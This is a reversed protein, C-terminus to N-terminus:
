NMHLAMSSLRLRGKVVHTVQEQPHNHEPLRVARRWHARMQYMAAGTVITQGGSARRSRCGRISPLM